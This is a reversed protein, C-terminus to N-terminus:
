KFLWAEVDVIAQKLKKVKYTRARDSLIISGELWGLAGYAEDLLDRITKSEEETLKIIIRDSYPM